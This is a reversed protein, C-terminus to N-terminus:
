PSGGKMMKSFALSLSLYHHYTAENVHLYFQTELMDALYSQTVYDRSIFVTPRMKKGRGYKPDEAKNGEAFELRM